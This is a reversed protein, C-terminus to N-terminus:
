GRPPHPDNGYSHRKGIQGNKNKIIHEAGLLKAQERGAKEAETKGQHVSSAKGNGQKRNKWQGDEYYTEVVNPM